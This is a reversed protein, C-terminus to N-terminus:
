LTIISAPYLYDDSGNIQIIKKIESIIAFTDDRFFNESKYRTRFFNVSNGVILSILFIM